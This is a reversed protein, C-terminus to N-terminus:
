SLRDGTQPHYGRVFEVGSMPRKGEPQVEALETATSGTAVLLHEKSVHLSGPLGPVREHTVVLEWVKLRKAKFTTWAGPRPSFARVRNRIGTAPLSWDIRADETTLKPALTALSEDQAKAVIEGRDLAELTEVLLVAGKTALRRELDGADDDEAISEEVQALIPGTDMREDMQMITVGTVERGDILAWQIPAAGRLLPVLSFHVNICGKPPINLIGRPLIQGYAVVVFLDADIGKLTQSIEASRLNSPQVVELGMQIARVKVPPAEM